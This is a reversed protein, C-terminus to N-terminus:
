YIKHTRLHLSAHWAGGERKLEWSIKARGNLYPLTMETAHGCDAEVDMRGLARAEDWTCGWVRKDDDDDSNLGATAYLLKKGPVVALDSLMYWDNYQHDTPQPARCVAM